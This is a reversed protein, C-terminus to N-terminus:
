PELKHQPLDDLINYWCAQSATHIHIAPEIGPDTDLTGACV